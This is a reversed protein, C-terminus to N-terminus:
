KYIYECKVPIRVRELQGPYKQTKSCRLYVMGFVTAHKIDGITYRIDIAKELLEKPTQNYYTTKNILPLLLKQLMKITFLLTGDGGSEEIRWYDRDKNKMNPDYTIHDINADPWWARTLEIPNHRKKNFNSM